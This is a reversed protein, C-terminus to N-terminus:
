DKRNQNRDARQLILGVIYNISHKFHTLYHGQVHKMINDM